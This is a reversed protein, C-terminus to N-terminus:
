FYVYVYLFPIKLFFNYDTNEVVFHNIIWCINLKIVDFYMVVKSGVHVITYM